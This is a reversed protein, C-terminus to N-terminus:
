AHKASAGALGPSITASVSNGETFSGSKLDALQFPNANSGTFLLLQYSTIDSLSPASGGDKWSITITGPSIADGAAPSTFTPEALVPLSSSLASLLLFPLSRM